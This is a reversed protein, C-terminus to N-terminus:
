KKETKTPKIGHITNFFIQSGTKYTDFNGKNFQNKRYENAKKRYENFDKIKGNNVIDFLIESATEGQRIVDGHAWFVEGLVKDIEGKLNNHTNVVNKNIQELLKYLKDEYTEQESKKHDSPEIMAAMLRKVFAPNTEGFNKLEMLKHYTSYDLEAKFVYANKKPM